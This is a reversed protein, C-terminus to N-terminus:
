ASLRAEIAARSPMATQAGAAECALSGATCAFALAARTDAGADLAAAFAGCFTDGAGTTDVVRVAPAAVRVIRAGDAHLAGDAGLTSVVACGYARSIAEASSHPMGGIDAIEHSNAIVTGALRLFAAPCGSSPAANLIAHIGRARAWDLAAHTEADPVERQLLLCSPKASLRDLDVARAHGNAGAAVVIQNRGAADVAIFAAGTPAAVQRVGSLDVGNARLNALAPEAFADAGLAGVLAVAAGAKRAALAQNAGKGGPLLAYEGGTVTEGESPLRRVRTVFDVNISGFVVIM